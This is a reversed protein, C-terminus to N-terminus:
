VEVKVRPHSKDWAACKCYPSCFRHHKRKTLFPEGCMACKAKLGVGPYVSRKVKKM